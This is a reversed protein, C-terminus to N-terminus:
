RVWDQHEIGWQILEQKMKNKVESYQLKKALNITELPDQQLDFLEDEDNPDYIYKYQATIAARRIDGLTPNGSYQSFMTREPLSAEGSLVAKLSCGEIDDPITLELLDLLTPVIDLHSVLETRTQAPCAPVKIIMPVKIAQEYMEMKQYMRHQGLHDGHDSMFLIITDKYQGTQKLADIIRGVCDDALRTLGLHAAWTKRWGELTMDSALQAPVGKRRNPPEGESPIGVNSPLELKNPDFLSAYPEPVALPPHPAWINVFLAFPASSHESEEIFQVAHDTFYVDKFLSLPLEWEFTHASSYHGNVYEGDRLEVIHKRSLANISPTIENHDLFKAYDHQDLFKAFDVREQLEPKVQIHNM